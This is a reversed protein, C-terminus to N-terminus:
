ILNPEEGPHLHAGLIPVQVQGIVSESRLPESGAKTPKRRSAPTHIVQSRADRTRPHVARPREGRDDQRVGVPRSPPYAKFRQNKEDRRRRVAAQNMWGAARSAWSAFDSGGLLRSSCTLSSFFAASSARTAPSLAQISVDVAKTMNM